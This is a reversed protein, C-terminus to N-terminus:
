NTTYFELVNGETDTFQFLRFPGVLMIADTIKSAIPKIRNYEAEIDSVEFNPICNNGMELPFAYATKNMLGFFGDGLQFASFRDSKQMPDTQFVARYFEVAREMDTVAIYLNLKM